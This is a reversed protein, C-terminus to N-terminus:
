RGEGTMSHRTAPEPTHARHHALVSRIWHWAVNRLAEPDEDRLPPGFSVEVRIDKKSFARLFHGVFTDDGVWADSRDAYEIAVPVVTFGERAALRFMGPSFPLIGPGSSSTGEPFVAASVGAKLISRLSAVARGRSMLNDRQVFVVNAFERAGYGILPWRAIEEKALFSCPVQSGIVAIDIYSRHNAVILTGDAPAKGRVTLRVGLIRLIM